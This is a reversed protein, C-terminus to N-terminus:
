NIYDVKIYCQSSNKIVKFNLLDIPLLVATLQLNPCSGSNSQVSPNATYTPSATNTRNITGIESPTGSNEITFTGATRGIENFTCNFANITGSQNHIDDAGTGLNSSFLCSDVTVTGGNNGIAAGDLNTATTYTHSTFKSRTFHATGGTIRVSGGILTGASLDSTSNDFLCDYVELNGASIAIDAGNHNAEAKNNGFITNYIKVSQSANNIDLSVGNVQDSSNNIFSYNRVNLNINSGSLTIGGTAFWGDNCVGGGGNFTVISNSNIIIPRTGSSYGNDQVVVNKINMGTGTLRLAHSTGSSNYERIELNEMTFDNANVNLFYNSGVSNQNNDFKTLDANIGIM